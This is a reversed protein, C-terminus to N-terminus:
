VRFPYMAERGGQLIKAPPHQSAEQRDRSTFRKVGLTSHLVFFSSMPNLPPQSMTTFRHIPNLNENAVDRVLHAVGSGNSRRPQEPAGQEAAPFQPGNGGTDRAALRAGFLSRFTREGARLRHLM